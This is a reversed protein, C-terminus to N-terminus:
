EDATLDVLFADEVLRDERREHRRVRGLWRAVEDCLGADAAPATGAERLADLARLLEAHEAILARITADLYPRRSLIAALYGGEELRFHEVLRARVGGLCPALDGPADTDLCARLSRLERILDRHSTLLADGFTAHLPM